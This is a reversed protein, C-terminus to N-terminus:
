GLTLVSRTYDLRSAWSFPRKLQFTIHQETKSRLSARRKRYQDQVQVNTIDPVADIPLRNFLELMGLGPAGAYSPM